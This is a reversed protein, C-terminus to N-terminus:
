PHYTVTVPETILEVRFSRKGDWQTDLNFDSLDTVEFVRPNSTRQILRGNLACLEGRIWGMQCPKMESMPITKPAPKEGQNITTRM